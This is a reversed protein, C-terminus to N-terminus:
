PAEKEVVARFERDVGRSIFNGEVTVVNSTKVVISAVEEFPAGHEKIRAHIHAVCELLNTPATFSVRVTRSTESAVAAFDVIDVVTPAASSTLRYVFSTPNLSWGATDVINSGDAYVAEAIPQYNTTGREAAEILIPADPPIVAAASGQWTFVIRSFDNTADDPVYAQASSMWKPFASIYLFMKSGAYPAWFLAALAFAIHGLRSSRLFKGCALAFVPFLAVAFMLIAGLGALSATVPDLTLGPAFFLDSPASYPPM